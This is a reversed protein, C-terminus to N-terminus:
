FDLEMGVSARPIRRDINWGIDTHLYYGLVSTRFGFGYGMMTGSARQMTTVRVSGSQTIVPYFYDEIKDTFATGVDVFGVLQLNRLFKNKVLRNSITNMVPLRIEENVVVYNSGNRSNQLYGRMNTVPTQYGYIVSTDMTPINPNPKPVLENDIGGIRYLMRNKGHSTAGSIRSALIINRYIGLYNRADLGFSLMNGKGKTLQLFADTYFKIRTGKRINQIPQVTNDYVYELHNFWWYETYTPFQISYENRAKYKLQDARLGSEFSVKTTITWPYTLTGQLYHQVQRAYEPVPSYYVDTTPLRNNNKILTDANHNFSIEWDLRNRYNAFKLQYGFTNTFTVPMRFGATIKYDELVDMLSLRLMGGLPPYKFQNNSLDLKQYKNFLLSNDFSTQLFDTSFLTKYEKVKFKKPKTNIPADSIKQKIDLSDIDNEFESLFYTDPANKDIQKEEIKKPLAIEGISDTHLYTDFTDLYSIPTNYVFYKGKKDIVDVISNKIKLYSHQLISYDIPNSKIYFTSDKGTATKTFNILYRQWKGDVAALCAFQNNGYQIPQQIPVEIHKSCLMLDSTGYDNYYYLKYPLNPLQENKIPAEISAIPRNSMMLIGLKTNGHVFSPAVDDWIDKTMQFLKANKITFQYLDSQGKKICSMVLKDDDEMFAMGNIRDFKNKTIIRDSVKGSKADFIKLRQNYDKEYMVALKKGDNNWCIIPYNPDKMELSNRVGGEIITQSKGNSVNFLNITYQGDLMECYAVVKADPSTAFQKLLAGKKPKIIGLLRRGASTDTLMTDNPTTYFQKWDAFVEKSEKGFVIEIASNLPKRSRTFFLLNNILNQNYKNAMFNFFSHGVLSPDQLELDKFEYKQKRNLLSKLRANKEADWDESIYQVYGNTYWQPLNMRVANQVIDKLSYGYLINDKIIKAIGKRIQKRMGDHTGDFFVVITNRQVDVLGNRSENLEENYRGINTQKYDNYANYIVVDIKSPLKAGMMFVIQPLDAEAQQLIFQANFKGYDYYMIRFHTTDYYRWEFTRLQVRNQGFKEYAAQQAKCLTTGLFLLIVIWLYNKNRLGMM